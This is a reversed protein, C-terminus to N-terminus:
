HVPESNGRPLQLPSQLLSQMGTTQFRLFSIYIKTIQPILGVKSRVYLYMINSEDTDLLVGDNENCQPVGGDMTCYHVRVEEQIYQILFPSARLNDVPFGFFGQIEKQHLDM